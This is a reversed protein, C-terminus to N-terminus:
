CCLCDNYWLLTLTITIVLLFHHTSLYRFYPHLVSDVLCMLMSLCETAFSLAGVVFDDVVPDQTLKSVNQM